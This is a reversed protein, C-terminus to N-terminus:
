CGCSQFTSYISYDSGDFGEFVNLLYLYRLRGEEWTFAYSAYIYFQLAILLHLGYRRIKFITKILDVFPTFIFKSFFNQSNGPESKQKKIRRATVDQPEKVIFFAYSIALITCAIKISYNAYRGFNDMIIASLLLGTISALIDFGDFIIMKTARNAPKSILTGYSYM